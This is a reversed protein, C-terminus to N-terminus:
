SSAACTASPPSGAASRAEVHYDNIADAIATATKFDPNTLVLVLSDLDDM